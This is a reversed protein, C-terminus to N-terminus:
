DFQAYIQSVVKAHIAIPIAEIIVVFLDSPMIGFIGIVSRCLLFDVLGRQLQFFLARGLASESM